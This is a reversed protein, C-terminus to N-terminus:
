EDLANAINEITGALNGTMVNLLGTVDTDESVIWENDKKVLKVEIEETYTKEAEDLKEILIESAKETTEAESVNSFLNELAWAMFDTYFASMVDGLAYSTMKVKVVANDGDIEEDGIEYDFDFMMDILRSQVEKDMLSTDEDSLDSLEEGIESLDIDDGEYLKSITEVDKDKIAKFFRDTVKSPSEAGGCGALSIAMCLSLLIALIKKM